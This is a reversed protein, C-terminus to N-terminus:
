FLSEEYGEDRRDNSIEDELLRVFTAETGRGKREM